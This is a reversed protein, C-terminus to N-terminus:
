VHPTFMGQSRVEDELAELKMIEEVTINISAEISAADEEAIIGEVLIHKADEISATDEDSLGSTRQLPLPKPHEHENRIAQAEETSMMKAPFGRRKAHPIGVIVNEPRMDTHPSETVKQPRGHLSGVALGVNSLEDADSIAENDRRFQIPHRRLFSSTRQQISGMSESMTQILSGGSSIISSGNTQFLSKGSSIRRRTTQFISNGSSTIFNITANRQLITQSMDCM